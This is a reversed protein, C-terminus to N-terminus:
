RMKPRRRKSSRGQMMQMGQKGMSRAVKSQGSNQLAKEFLDIQEKLQPETIKLKKLERYQNKAATWKNKSGNINALQLLIMAKENDSPLKLKLAEEFLAEAGNHDKKNMLISGKLIYYFARNTVYLYEPKWTLGLRKEAGDFDQKQVMQAASQITGLMIYSVLLGIGVLIFPFAYWFGFAFALGIGGLLLLAILAFKLYINITFM